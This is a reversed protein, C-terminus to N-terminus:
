RSCAWRPLAPRSAASRSPSTSGAGFRSCSSALRAPDPKRAAGRRQKAASLRLAGGPEARDGPRDGPRRRGGGGAGVILWLPIRRILMAPIFPLLLIATWHFPLTAVLLWSPLRRRGSAHLALAAMLLGIAVSQRTAVGVLVVLVPIAILLALAPSKQIRVFMMLGAAFIAACVLNVVPLAFGLRAAIASVLMYGPESLTMAEPVPYAGARVFMILYNDWDIGIGRRLGILLALALWVLVLAIREARPSLRRGLALVLPLVLLWAHIWM